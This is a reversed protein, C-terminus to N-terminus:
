READVGSSQINKLLKVFEVVKWAIKNLLLLHKIAYPHYLTLRLCTSPATQFSKKGKEKKRFLM